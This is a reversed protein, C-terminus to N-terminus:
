EENEEDTPPSYMTFGELIDRIENLEEQTIATFESESSNDATTASAVFIYRPPGPLGPDCAIGISRTQGTAEVNKKVPFVEDVSPNISIKEKLPESPLTELFEKILSDRWKQDVIRLGLQARPDQERLLEKLSVSSVGLVQKLPKIGIPKLLKRLESQHYKPFYESCLFLCDKLITDVDEETIEMNKYVLFTSKKVIPFYMIRGWLATLGLVSIPHDRPAFIGRVGKKSEPTNVLSIRLDNYLIPMLERISDIRINPLDLPNEIGVINSERDYRNFNLVLAKESTMLLHLPYYEEGEYRTLKQTIVIEM